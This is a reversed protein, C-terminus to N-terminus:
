GGIKFLQVLLKSNILVFAAEPLKNLSACVNEVLQVSEFTAGHQLMIQRTAM